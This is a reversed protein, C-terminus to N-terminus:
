YTGDISIVTLNSGYGEGYKKGRRKYKEARKENM